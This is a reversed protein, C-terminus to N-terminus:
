GEKGQVCIERVVAVVRATREEYLAELQSGSILVPSANEYSTSGKGQKEVRRSVNLFKCSISIPKPAQFHMPLFSFTINRRVGRPQMACKISSPPVDDM